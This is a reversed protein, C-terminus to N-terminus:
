GNNEVGMVSSVDPLPMWHTPKHIVGIDDVWFNAGQYELVVLYKDCSSYALYRGPKPPLHEKVSVWKAPVNTDKGAKLRENEDEIEERKYIEKHIQWWLEANEFMLTELRNIASSKMITNCNPHNDTNCCRLAQILEEDTM